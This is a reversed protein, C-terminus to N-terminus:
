IGLAARQQALLDVGNAMFIMNEVDIEQLAVNNVELRYYTLAMEIKLPALEGAKQTGSDLTKIKGTMAHLVPKVTGDFSELTGRISFSINAGEVVGFLSLVDADYAILSASAELKELAMTLEVPAVMGGAMFDETKLALKPPTVEQVQGGYGRGDVFLNINKLVDRAAM